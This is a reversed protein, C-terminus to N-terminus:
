LVSDLYFVVRDFNYFYVFASLEVALSNMMLSNLRDCPIKYRQCYLMTWKETMNGGVNLEKNVNCDLFFAFRLMVVLCRTLVTSKWDETEKVLFYVLWIIRWHAFSAYFGCRSFCLRYKCHKTEFPFERTHWLTQRLCVIAIYIKEPIGGTRPGISIYRTIEKSKQNNAHM